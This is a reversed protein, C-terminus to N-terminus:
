LRKALKVGTANERRSGIFSTQYRFTPASKKLTFEHPESLSEVAQDQQTLYLFGSFVVNQMQATFHIGVEFLYFLCFNAKLLIYLIKTTNPQSLRYKIYGSQCASM